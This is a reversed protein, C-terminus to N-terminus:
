LIDAFSLAHCCSMVCFISHLKTNYHQLIIFFGFPVSLYAILLVIVRSFVCALDAFKLGHTEFVRGEPRM